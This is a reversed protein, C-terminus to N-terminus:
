NSQLLTFTIIHIYTKIKIVVMRLFAEKLRNNGTGSKGGFYIFIFLREVQMSLHLPPKQCRHHFVRHQLETAKAAM